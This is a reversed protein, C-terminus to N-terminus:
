TGYLILIFDKVKPLNSSNGPRCQLCGVEKVNAPLTRSPDLGTVGSNMLLIDFNREVEVLDATDEGFIQKALKQQKILYNSRTYKSYYLYLFNQVREIFSMQSSFTLWNYFDLKTYCIFDFGSHSCQNRTSLPIIQLEWPTGVGFLTRM